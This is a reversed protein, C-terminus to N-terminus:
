LIFLHRYSIVDIICIIHSYDYIGKRIRPVIFYVEPDPQALKLLDKFTLASGSSDYVYDVEVKVPSKNVLDQITEESLKRRMVKWECGPRINGESDKLKMVIIQSLWKNKGAARADRDKSKEVKSKSNILNNLEEDRNLM